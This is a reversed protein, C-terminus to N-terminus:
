LCRAARARIASASAMRRQRGRVVPAEECCGGAASPEQALKLHREEEEARRAAEADECGNPSGATPRPPGANPRDTVLGSDIEDRDAALSSVPEPVEAHVWVDSQADPTSAEPADGAFEVARLCTAGAREVAAVGTRELVQLAESSVPEGIATSRCSGYHARELRVTRLTPSSFGPIIGRRSADLHRRAPLCM